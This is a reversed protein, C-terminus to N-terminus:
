VLKVMRRRTLCQLSSSTSTKSPKPFALILASKWVLSFYGFVISLKIVYYLQLIINFACNKIMATIIRDIDPVKNNPLQKIINLIFIVYSTLFNTNIPPIMADLQAVYDNVV